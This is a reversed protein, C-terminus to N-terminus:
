AALHKQPKTATGGQASPLPGLLSSSKEPFIISPMPDDIPLSCAKALEGIESLDGYINHLAALLDSAAEADLLDDSLMAAVKDLLNAIIPNDTAARDQILWSLLFEAEPQDIKGDATLGKSLGILTDIQRDQINKRNFRVFTDM